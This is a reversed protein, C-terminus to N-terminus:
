CSNVLPETDVITIASHNKMMMMVIQMKSNKSNNKNNYKDYHLIGVTKLLSRSLKPQSAPYSPNLWSYPMVTRASGVLYCTGLMALLRPQHIGSQVSPSSTSALFLTEPCTNSSRLLLLLHNVKSSLGNLTM